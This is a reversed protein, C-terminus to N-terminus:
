LYNNFSRHGRQRIYSDWTDLVFQAGREGIMIVPGNTNVTVVTPMIGADIVRLRKTGIVRLESDVVSHPSDRPGMATTGSYHYISVSYHRVFCEWYPDSRFPLHRCPPFPVPSLRSGVRRFAPSNESMFVARKVGEVMVKIDSGDLDEFYKPNFLPTDRFNASRLHMEGRARPRSLMVTIQFADKGKVPDFFEKLVDSRVNFAHAFTEDIVGWNGLGLFMWQTDPWEPNGEEHARFSSFFANAHIGSTTLSGSGNNVFRLANIANADRDLNFSKPAEVLFPGPFTGIHDQINQGVPANIRVKLGLSHLHEQPGIGSLMLLKASDLSGASLIVEKTAFAVRKRGHREYEIGYAENNPGRFLVKYAYAYKEITLTKRHLIPQLFAHYTSLRRGNRQTYTVTAAGEKYPGNLDVRPIGNWECGQLFQEVLPQYPPKGVTLFGNKHHFQPEFVDNPNNECQVCYDESKKFFPLVGDYSWRSDGTINAWNDYDLKHGRLYVMLNLTSSGGLGRGRSWSSQRNNLSLCSSRQPISRYMYDNEPHNLLITALAPVLALPNPDGGRELLLVNFHESLRNAVVSGASGAGVIIFDYVNRRPDQGASRLSDATQDFDFFLSLLAPIAGLSGYVIPLFWSVTPYGFTAQSMLDM